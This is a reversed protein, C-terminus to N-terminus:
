VKQLMKALLIIQGLVVKLFIHFMKEGFEKNLEEMTPFPEGTTQFFYHDKPLIEREVLSADRYPGKGSVIVRETSEEVQKKPPVIIKGIEKFFSMVLFIACKM